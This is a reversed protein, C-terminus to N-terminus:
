RATRVVVIGTGGAGGGVGGNYAAGGGGGTNATGNNAAGGATIKGAGGGGTGGTGATGTHAGGGGGGGYTVASGTRISTALGAGGNGGATSSAANAGVAGAGGGGGGAYAGGDDGGNHGGTNAGLGVVGRGPLWDASAPTGASGGGSGGHNGAAITGAAGYTYGGYGGGLAELVCPIGAGTISSKGGNTPTLLGAGSPGVTVTYTGVAIWVDVFDIVQGGGGGGAAATTNVNGGSGGGGGVLNFSILGARDITFSGSGTFSWVDFTSGSTYSTIAPSGTTASVRAKPVGGAKVFVWVNTTPTLVLTGSEYQALTLSSGNVTVGGAPTITVTGAGLNIISIHTGAAFPVSANTPVNYAVASGNSCTTLGGQDALVATLSVSTDTRIGFQNFAGKLATAGLVNGATFDVM